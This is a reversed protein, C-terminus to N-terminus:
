GFKKQFLCGLCCCSASCLRPIRLPAQLRRIVIAQVGVLVELPPHFGHLIGPIGIDLWIGVLKLGANLHRLKHGLVAVQRSALVGLLNGLADCTPSCSAGAQDSSFAVHGQRMQEKPWQQLFPPAM